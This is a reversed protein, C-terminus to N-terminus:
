ALRRIPKPEDIVSDFFRGDVIAETQKLFAVEVKASEVLV